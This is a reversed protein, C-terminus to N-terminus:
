SRKMRQLLEEIRQFDEETNVSESDFVSRIIKINYGNELVRLQELKEKKELSLSPLLTIKQLFDMKYAYIGLHKLFLIGCSTDRQSMFDHQKEEGGAGSVPSRVPKWYPIPSRSFYLAFDNSDVVVKVVNNSHFEEIKSSPYVLTAMDISKSENLSSILSEVSVPSILPEDSQINVIIDEDCLNLKRAAEAVRDTGSKHFHSTKIVKSGFKKASDVIEESDTAIFVDRFSSVKLASQWTWEILPKGLIKRLPKGPVRTSEYRAPIICFVKKM